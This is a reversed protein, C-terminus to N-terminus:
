SEIRLQKIGARHEMVHAERWLVRARMLAELHVAGIGGAVEQAAVADDCCSISVTQVAIASCVVGPM